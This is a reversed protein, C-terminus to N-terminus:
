VSTRRKIEVLNQVVISTTMMEDVFSNKLGMLGMALPWQFNPQFRWRPLNNIFKDNISSFCGYKAFNHLSIVRMFGTFKYSDHLSSAM